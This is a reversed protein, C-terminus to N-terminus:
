RSTLAAMVLVVLTAVLVVAGILEAGSIRGHQTLQAVAQEGHGRDAAASVWWRLTRPRGLWFTSRPALELPLRMQEGPELRTPASARWTAGLAPSVEIQAYATVPRNGDNHVLVQLRAPERGRCQPESPQTRVYLADYPEVDIHVDDATSVVPEDVTRAVVRLPYRGARPLPGPAVTVALPLHAFGGAPIEVPGRLGAMCEDLPSQTRLEVRHPRDDDNYVRLDLHDPRGPRVRLPDPYAQVTLGTPEAPAPAPAAPRTLQRTPVPHNLQRSPVRRTPPDPEGPATGDVVTTPGDDASLGDAEILGGAETLEDGAPLHESGPDLAAVLSEVLAMCTPPRRGSDVALAALLVEDVASPLAPALESPPTVAGSLVQAVLAADDAADFPPRGTLVEYATVGLAYVDGSRGPDAGALREPPVYRMSGHWHTRTVRSAGLLLAIGFDTVWARRRPFDGPASLLVNAPKVDRHIIGEADYAYDLAGAVQTLLACVTAVPLPGSRRLESGLDGGAVYEMRLALGEELALVGYSRVIGPHQLRRVVAAERRFREQAEADLLDADRLVKLAELHGYVEHRALWIDAMGGHAVLREIVLGRLRQGSQLRM